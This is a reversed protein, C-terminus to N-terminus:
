VREGRVLVYEVLGMTFGRYVAIDLLLSLRALTWGRIRSIARISEARMQEFYYGPIVLAGIEQM